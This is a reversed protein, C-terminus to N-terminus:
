QSNRPSIIARAQSGDTCGTTSLQRSELYYDIQCGTWQDNGQTFRVDGVASVHQTAYDLVINEGEATVLAQDIAPQQQYLAPSGMVSVKKVEGDVREITIEQGTIKLSGQIIEAPTGAVGYLVQKGENLLLLSNDFTGLIPQSADEPLAQLSAPIFVSLFACTLALRVTTITRTTMIDNNRNQSNM